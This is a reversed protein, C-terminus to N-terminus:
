FLYVTTVHVTGDPWLVFDESYFVSLLTVKRDFSLSILIGILRFSIHFNWLKAPVNFDETLISIRRELVQAFSLYQIVGLGM